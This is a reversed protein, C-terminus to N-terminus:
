DIEFSGVETFTADLGREREKERGKDTIKARAVTRQFSAFLSTPSFLSLSLNTAVVFSPPLRISFHLFLYTVSSLRLLPPSSPLFPFLFFFLFSHISFCAGVGQVGEIIITEEEGNREGRRARMGAM